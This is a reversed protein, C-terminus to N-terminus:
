SKSEMSKPAKKQVLNIEVQFFYKIGILIVNRKRTRSFGEFNIRICNIYFM